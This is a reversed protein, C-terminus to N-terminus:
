SCLISFRRPTGSTHLPTRTALRAPRFAPPLRRLLPRALAAAAALASCGAVAFGTPAGWRECIWGLLPGGFPTTGLFVLGHLALVRGHLSRDTGLQLLTRALTNFSLNAFGVLAMVAYALGLTPVAAMLLNAVGFGAAAVGLARPSATLRTATGLAGLVAGLGLIATLYGYAQPGGHFTDRALIPLVVRFNQGLLGIVLVLLMAARLHPRSWVYRLGERIQGRRRGPPDRPLLLTRDMRALAALLAIYSVANVLFATGVGAQAIILGAIAPGVLRGTNHVTSNLAQANVYDAPGVLDGVFAQRGPSDVVTVMGLLLALLYVMWLRISGAFTLGALALALVLQASQTLLLLRRRDVRDVIVGGWAGLLLTPLFQMATAVGLALGDGTLQLVLWDQGVRQMWTGSVSLGHGIFYRRYNHERLSRFTRRLM